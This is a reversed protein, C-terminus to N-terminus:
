QELPIYANERCYITSLRIRGSSPILFVFLVIYVLISNSLKVILMKQYSSTENMFFFM